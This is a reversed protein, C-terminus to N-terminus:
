KRIERQRYNETDKKTRLLRLMEEIKSLEGSRRKKTVVCRDKRKKVNLRKTLGHSKSNKLRQKKKKRQLSRPSNM